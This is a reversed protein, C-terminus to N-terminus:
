HFSIKTPRKWDTGWTTAQFPMKKVFAFTVINDEDKKELRELNIDSQFIVVMM